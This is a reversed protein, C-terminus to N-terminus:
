GSIKGSLSLLANLLNHDLHGDVPLDHVQQFGEIARTTNPGTFGDAGQTDFGLVKLANQASQVQDKTLGTQDGQWPTQFPAAGQLRDSLHGVAIAYAPANNYRLIADYNQSMLFAPGLHGAPLAFSFKASAQTNEFPGVGLKAWADLGKPECHRASYLDLNDPSHVEVGWPVDQVWGHQALYNATSTLADTPDDSWIDASGDAFPCAFDLYSTPMFQTHGMAGAWSGLMKDPQQHGLSVIKFAALLQNEFLTRRRGDHALTALAALVPIDGRIQGFNTELGWIAAVITKPVGFRAEIKDFAAGHDAMAIKGAAVRKESVTIDLYQRLTKRAEAQTADAAKPQELAVLYQACTHVVDAGVISTARDLFGSKWEDFTM